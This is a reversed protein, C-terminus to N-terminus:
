IEILNSAQFREGPFVLFLFQNDVGQSLIFEQQFILKRNELGAVGGPSPQIRGRM